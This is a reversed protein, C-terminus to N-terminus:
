INIKTTIGMNFGYSVRTKEDTSIKIPTNRMSIICTRTGIQSFSTEPKFLSFLEWAKGMAVVSKLDRVVVQISRVSMDSFQPLASGNYENIITCGDPSDPTYDKFIDVDKATAKGESITHNIIDLLLDETM